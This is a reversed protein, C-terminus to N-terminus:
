CAARRRVLGVLLLLGLALPISSSAEPVAAPAVSIDFPQTDFYANGFSDDYEVQFTGGYSGFPTSPDVTVDFLDGAFSASPNLVAPAGNGFATDDAALGTPWTGIPNLSYGGLYLPNPQPNTVTGTFQLAAGPAVSQDRQDLTLSLQPMAQAGVAASMLVLSVCVPATWKLVPLSPKPHLTM